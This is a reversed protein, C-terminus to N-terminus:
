VTFHIDPTQRMHEAQFDDFRSVAGPAFATNRAPKQHLCKVADIFNTKQARNLTRRRLSDTPHKFRQYIESVVYWERRIVPKRCVPKPSDPAGPIAEVVCLVSIAVALVGNFVVTFKMVSNMFSVERAAAPVLVM